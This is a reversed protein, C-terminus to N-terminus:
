SADGRNWILGLIMATRLLPIRGRRATRTKNFLRFVFDNSVM